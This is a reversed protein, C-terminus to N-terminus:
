TKMRSLLVTCPHPCLAGHSATHEQAAAQGATTQRGGQEGAERKGFPSQKLMEQAVSAMFEKADSAAQAAQETTKSAAEAAQKAAAAAAKQAAEAPNSSEARAKEEQICDNSKANVEGCCSSTM